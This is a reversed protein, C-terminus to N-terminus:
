GSFAVRWFAFFKVIPYAAVGALLTLVLAAFSAALILRVLAVAESKLKQM